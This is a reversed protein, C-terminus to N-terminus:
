QALRLRPARSSVALAVMEAPELAWGEDVADEFGDPGLITRAAAAAADRMAVDPKYYGHVDAGVTDRLSRAAGLLVAVRRSGGNASEVVALADLFYALNALDGTEESLLIGEELQARAREGDGLAIAAQAATFLAMYIALRDGRRRAVQLATDVLVLAQEPHGRLLRITALWVHALTWLWADDELVTEALPITQTLAREAVDLDERGLAVLGQGAIAHVRGSALGHEESLRRAEDWGPASAALDGQAFTMAAHTLLTGVRAEPSMPLELAREAFRRGAILHGRLWWDLWLAWCLRGTLDGEALALGTELAAALNGEERATLALAEVAEVRRYAPVNREALELFCHAHRLRATRADDSELLRARAYQLVPELQDYRGGDTSVRVLSHEVLRELPELVDGGAVAEAADLTFGGTFVGLLRFLRQQDPDLLEYSWDLTAQMTQQRPPLDRAGASAMATDLRALLAAPSLLRVKAAALELALPIGALRGCLQAVDRANSDDVAFGSAVARAREVFLAGAPSALVADAGASPRPLELPRVPHECEGRLRLAARSTALVTVGPCAHLLEGLDPVAPLLHELNDLVVLVQSTALAASVVAVADLGEVGSVGAARGLTPLVLRPDTAAALPVWVVGDAFSSAAAAAVALALRTKGVGGLGTLTLLRTSPSTLAAVVADVEADRGLLATPPVPLAPARRSPAPVDDPAAQASPGRRPVAALLDAREDDDLGLARALSRVTHPYPRTRTGRELASVAHPTLGAREALEEQTLGSRERLARLADAFAPAVARASV